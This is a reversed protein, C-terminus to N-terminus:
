IGAEQRQCSQCYLSSRESFRVAFHGRSFAVYVSARQLCLIRGRLIFWESLWLVRALVMSCPSASRRSAERLSGLVDARDPGLKLELLAVRAERVSVM